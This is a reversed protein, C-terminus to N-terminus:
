KVKVFRAGIFVPFHQDVPNNGGWYDEFLDTLQLGAKVPGLFHAKISHGFVLPENGSMFMNLEDDDLSTFDSYPQSYKLKFEGKEVLKVDFLYYVPNAFGTLFVGGPKLVRSVQRYVNEVDPIFGTSCPNFVVDFSRFLM